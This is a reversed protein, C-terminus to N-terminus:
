YPLIIILISRYYSYIRVLQIDIIGIEKILEINGAVFFSVFVGGRGSYESNRISDKAGCAMIQMAQTTTCYLINEGGLTDSGM